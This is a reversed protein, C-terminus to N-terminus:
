HPLAVSAISIGLSALLTAGALTTLVPWAPRSVTKEPADTSVITM